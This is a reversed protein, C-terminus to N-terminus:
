SQAHRKETAKPWRRKMCFWEGPRGLIWQEFLQNVQRVMDRSQEAADATKDRAQIPPLINVRYREEPLREAFVPVLDCDYRLALRAAITNTWADEGFFALPEGSDLRTDLTLGICHNQSLERMLIRVGGERKILPSGYARRLRLMLKDVHPNDEPAYIVPLTVGFHPGILPTLQWASVHATIFISPRATSPRIAGPLLKFEIRQERQRWIRNLQILEVLMVGLNHFSHRLIQDIEASTKGAFAVTLNKRIKNARQTRIGIQIFCWGTAACATAFPLRRLLGVIMGVCWSEVRWVWPQIIHGVRQLGRPIFYYHPM